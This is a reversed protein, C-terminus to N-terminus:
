PVMVDHFFSFMQGCLAVPQLKELTNQRPLATETERSAQSCFGGLQEKM